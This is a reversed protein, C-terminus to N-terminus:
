SVKYIAVVIALTVLIKSIFDVSKNEAIILWKKYHLKSIYLFISSFTKNFPLFYM